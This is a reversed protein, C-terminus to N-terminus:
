SFFSICIFLNESFFTIYEFTTNEYVVKVFKDVLTIINICNNQSLKQSLWLFHLLLFVIQTFTTWFNGYFPQIFIIKRYIICKM